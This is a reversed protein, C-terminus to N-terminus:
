LGRVAVLPMKLILVFVVWVGLAVIAPPTSGCHNNGDIVFVENVKRFFYYIDKTASPTGGSTWTYTFPKFSDASAIHALIEASQSTIVTNTLAKFDDASVNEFNIDNVVGIVYYMDKNSALSKLPERTLRLNTVKRSPAEEVVVTPFIADMMAFKLGDVDGSSNTSSKKSCAAASFAILVALLLLAWKSTLGISRM